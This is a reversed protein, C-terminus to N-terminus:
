LKAGARALAGPKLLVKGDEFYRLDASLSVGAFQARGDALVERLRELKQRKWRLDGFDVRTGDEFALTWAGAGDYKATRLGAQVPSARDLDGLLAAFGKLDARTAAGPDIAPGDPVPVGDQAPFLVGDDSLGRGDLTRAVAKRVTVRYVLEHDLWRRSASAGALCPFAALLEGSRDVRSPRGDADTLFRELKGRLPEPAGEVVVSSVRPALRARLATWSPADRRLQWVTAAALGGLVAVAAVAAAKRARQGRVKPRAVVRFRRRRASRRM